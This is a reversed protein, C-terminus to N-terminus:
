IGVIYSTFNILILFIVVIIILTIETTIKKPYKMWVEDFEETPLSIKNKYLFLIIILHILFCILSVYFLAQRYPQAALINFTWFIFALTLIGRRLFLRFFGPLLNIQKQLTEKKTPNM